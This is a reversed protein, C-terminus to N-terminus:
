PTFTATLCVLQFAFLSLALKKTKPSSSSSLFFLLFLSSSSDPDSPYRAKKDTSALGRLLCWRWAFMFAFAGKSFFVGGRASGAAAALM